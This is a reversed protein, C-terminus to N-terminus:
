RAVGRWFGRVDEGPEDGVEYGGTATVRNTSSRGNGLLGLGEEHDSHAGGGKGGRGRKM